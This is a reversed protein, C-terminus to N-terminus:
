PPPPAPRLSLPLPPVFFSATTPFPTTPCAPCTPCTPCAPCVPCAPTVRTGVSTTTTVSTGTTGTSSLLVPVSVSTGAPPLPQLPPTQSIRFTNTPGTYIGLRARAHMGSHVSPVGLRVTGVSVDQKTPPDLPPLPESAPELPSARDVTTSISTPSRDRASQSSDSVATPAATCPTSRPSAQFAPSARAVRFTKGRSRRSTTPVRTRTQPTTAFINLIRHLDSRPDPLSRLPPLLTFTAPQLLALDHIRTITSPVFASRRYTILRMLVHTYPHDLCFFTLSRM